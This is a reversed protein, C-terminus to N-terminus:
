LLVATLIDRFQQVPVAHSVAGVHLGFGGQRRQEAGGHHLVLRRRLERGHHAFHHAPLAFARGGLLWRAGAAQPVSAAM